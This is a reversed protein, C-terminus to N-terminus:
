TADKTQVKSINRSSHVITIAGGVVLIDALNFTPWHWQLWHLDLYDIVAGRRLRDVVYGMAGGIISVYAITISPSRVGQWLMFALISSIMMGVASLVYRQWGDAEALFSFAAGPNLVHVWNFWSTVPIGTHLPLAAVTVQKIVQDLAALVFALLCWLWLRTRSSFQPRM